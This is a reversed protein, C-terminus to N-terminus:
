TLRHIRLPAAAQRHRIWRDFPLSTPSAPRECLRAAHQCCATISHCHQVVLVDAASSSLRDIQDGNKGLSAITMPKFEAPGKFLFAARLPQGGVLLHTTWLDFQEGGWDKPVDPVALIEAFAKKIEVEPLGKLVNLDSKSMRQSFDVGTFQDVAGPWLHNTPYLNDIAQTPRAWRSAIVIPRIDIVDDTVDQVYGLMFQRRTGSLQSKATSCTLRSPNYDGRIRVSQASALKASFTARADEGKAISQLAIPLGKFAIAQELWILQGIRLTGHLLQIDLSEVPQSTLYTSVAREMLDARQMEAFGHSGAASIRRGLEAADSPALVNLVLKQHLFWADLGTEESVGNM